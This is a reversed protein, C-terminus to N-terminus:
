EKRLVGPILPSTTIPLKHNSFLVLLVQVLFESVRFSLTFSPVAHAASIGEITLLAGNGQKWALHVASAVSCHYVFWGKWFLM